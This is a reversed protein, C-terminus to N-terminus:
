VTLFLSSRNRVTEAYYAEEQNRELEEQSSVNKLILNIGSIDRKLCVSNANSSANDIKLKRLQAVEGRLAAIEDKLSCLVAALPEFNSPPISNYNAAM